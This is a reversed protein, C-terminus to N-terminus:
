RVRRRYRDARMRARERYLADALLKRDEDTPLRNLAEISLHHIIARDAVIHRASM